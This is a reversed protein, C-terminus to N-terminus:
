PEQFGPTNPGLVIVPRTKGYGIVRTGVPVFLTKTIRYRGEPLLVLGGRGRTFLAQLADSDDAAGDGKAQGDAFTVAGPDDPKQTFISEARAATCLTIALLAAAAARVRQITNAM